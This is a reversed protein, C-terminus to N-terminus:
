PAAVVAAADRVAYLMLVIVTSGFGAITGYAARRGRWAVPRRAATTKTGLPSSAAMGSSALAILLVAALSAANRM